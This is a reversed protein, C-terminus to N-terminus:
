IPTFLDRRCAGIWGKGKKFKECENLYNQLISSVLMTLHLSKIQNKVVEWTNICLVKQM